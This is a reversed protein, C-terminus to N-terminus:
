RRWRRVEFIFAAAGDTTGIPTFTLTGAFRAGVVIL